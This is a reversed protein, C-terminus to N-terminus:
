PLWRKSAQCLPLTMSLLLEPESYRLPIHMIADFYRTLRRREARRPEREREAPRACGAHTAAPGRSGARREERPYEGRSRSFSGTFLHLPNIFESRLASQAAERAAPDRSVCM